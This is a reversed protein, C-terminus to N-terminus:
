NQQGRRNIAHGLLGGLQHVNDTADTVRRNSLNDVLNVGLNLGKSIAGGGPVFALGMDIVPQFTKYTKIVGDKIRKFITGFGM